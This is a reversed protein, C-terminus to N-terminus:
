QLAMTVLRYGIDLTGKSLLPLAGAKAQVTNARNPRQAIMQASPEVAIVFLDKPEYSGSGAGVNIVSSHGELEQLIEAACHLLRDYITKPNGQALSNLRHSLTFVFHFDPGL